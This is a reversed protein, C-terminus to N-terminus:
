SRALELISAKPIAGVTKKVPAGNKFLMITPISMVKYNSSSNPSEDINLKAFVIDTAEASAEEFIPGLMKCPNCWEAWFDVIVPKESKLVLEDFNSDNVHIVSM